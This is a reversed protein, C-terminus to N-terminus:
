IAILGAGGGSSRPEARGKRRQLRRGPDGSGAGPGAASPADEVARQQSGPSQAARETSREEKTGTASSCLSRDGCLSTPNLFPCAPPLRGAAADAPHRARLMRRSQHSPPFGCRSASCFAPSLCQRSRLFTPKSSPFMKYSCRPFRLQLFPRPQPAPGWGLAPSDQAVPCSQCSGSGVCRRQSPLGPLAMGVPIAM